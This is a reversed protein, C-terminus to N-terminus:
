KEEWLELAKTIDIFFADNVKYCPVNHEQLFNNCLASVGYGQEKMQESCLEFLACVSCSNYLSSDSLGGVLSYSRGKYKFLPLKIM